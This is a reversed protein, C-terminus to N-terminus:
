WWRLGVRALLDRYLYRWAVYAVLLGGLATLIGAALVEAPGFVGAGALGVFLGTGCAWVAVLDGVRGGGSRARSWGIALLAVVLLGYLVAM